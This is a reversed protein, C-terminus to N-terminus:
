KHIHIHSNTLTLMILLRHHIYCSFCKAIIEETASNLAFTDVREEEREKVSLCFFITLSFELNNSVNAGFSDADMWLSPKGRTSQTMRNWCSYKPYPDLDDIRRVHKTRKFFGLNARGPFLFLAKHTDELWQCNRITVDRREGYNDNQKKNQIISRIVVM